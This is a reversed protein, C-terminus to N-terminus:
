NAKKQQASKILDDTLVLKALQALTDLAIDAGKEGKQERMTCVLVDINAEYDRQTM